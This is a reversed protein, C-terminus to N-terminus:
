RDASERAMEEHLLVRMHAIRDQTMPHDNALSALRSLIGTDGLYMELRGFAGAADFPNYGAAVFLAFGIADARNECVRQEAIPSRGSGGLLKNLEGSLTQSGIQARGSESKCTVDLAHGTEHSLIFAMEGEAEGMFRVMAVPICILSENANLAHHYANIEGSDVVAVHM